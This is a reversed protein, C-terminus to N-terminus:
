GAAEKAAALPRPVLWKPLKPVEIAASGSDGFRRMAPAIEDSAMQPPDPLLQTAGFSAPVRAFLEGRRSEGGVERQVGGSDGRQEVPM